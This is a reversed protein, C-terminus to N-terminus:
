EAPARAANRTAGYIHGFPALSLALAAACLLLVADVGWAAPSRMADINVMVHLIVGFAILAASALRLGRSVLRQDPWAVAGAILLLLSIWFQAVLTGASLLGTTEAILVLALAAPTGWIVSTWARHLKPSPKGREARKILWINVGSACVASLALGLLAYAFKVPLGGFSGFHIPYSAALAQQGAPGDSLGTKHTFAGNADFYFNEGYILRRPMLALINMTQGATAPEHFNVYWPIAAADVSDLTRLSAAIDTLPAPTLDGEAEAGFVPEFFRTSDGEYAFPAVSAALLLSLGIWAGTLAIAVHFPAGWVSLRNHLDTERIQKSGRLRLRFADKFIRPHAMFGSVILGLMMAGLLGVVTLGVYLPMHLYYHLNILFDSLGHSVPQGLAGTEDAFWGAGDADVFMRPMGPTPLTVSYHHPTEELRALGAEAAAQVAKPEVSSFEPAGPQEWRQIEDNFVVLTGSLCIIYLLAGLILGISSHANLASAVFNPPVKPWIPKPM